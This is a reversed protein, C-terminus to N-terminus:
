KNRSLLRVALEKIFGASEFRCLAGLAADTYERAKAQALEIGLLSSYTTKNNKEDSGAPKGLQESSGVIDLIDDQIQFALGLNCAFDNAAHLRSEDAGAAICGLLCAAAILASTKMEYMSILKDSAAGCSEYKLDLAQGGAMGSLGSQRALVEVAAARKEASLPAKAAILFAHTLLSDGALLALAEGFRKHCSPRGRRMDDNDMCPLDDHILSYTHVFEVAAAFNIAKERECGLAKAFELCLVPRIRKGGNELSYLMAEALDGSFTGLFQPLKENIFEIDNTLVSNFEFDTM